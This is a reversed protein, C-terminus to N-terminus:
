ATVTRAALVMEVALVVLVLAILYIWLKQQSEARERPTSKSLVSECGGAVVVGPPIKDSRISAVLVKTDLPATDPERPDLNVAFRAQGGQFTMEYVGPEDAPFSVMKEVAKPTEGEPQEPEEAEGALSVVPLTRTKGGPPRLEVQKVEPGVRHAIRDGVILNRDGAARETCLRRTLEHIFPPFITKICLNNWELDAASVFLLSKGKGIRKELLAPRWNNFRALITAAHSDKVQFYQAFRASAFDGKRPGYFERFIEHRWELVSITVPDDGAQRGLQFLQCPAIGGLSQNFTEPVVKPGVFFAVGGGDDRIFKRVAALNLQSLSAVNSFIIGNVGKVDAPTMKQPTVERVEFPSSVDPTGPDLAKAIFFGDNRNLRENPEGNVLLVRVRPTVHVCFYAVNDKKLSDDAEIHISGVTDGPDKFIRRFRVPTGSNPRINVAKKEVVKGALRLVVQANNLPKATRNVIRASIVEAFGGAVVIRPVAVREIYVNPFEAGAHPRRLAEAAADAKSKAQDAQTRAQVAQRAAEDAAAKLAKNGADKSAKAAAATARQRAMDAARRADAAAKRTAEARKALEERRKAAKAPDTEKVDKVILGVGPKLRWDVRDRAAQVSTGKTDKAKEAGAYRWSTEQFDSIV